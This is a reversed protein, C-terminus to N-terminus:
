DSRHCRAPQAGHRLRGRDRRARRARGIRGARGVGRRGDRHLQRRSGDPSLGEITTVSKGAADALPTMCSRIARGSDLVTCAGCVGVGCGYKTGLLGLRDGFVWLLPMRGDADVDRGVGNVILSFTPM